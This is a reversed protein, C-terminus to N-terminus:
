TISIFNLKVFLYRTVNQFISFSNFVVCEYNWVNHVPGIQGMHIVSQQISCWKENRSHKILVFPMGSSIRARLAFLRHFYLKLNCFVVLITILTMKSFNLNIKHFNLEENEILIRKSSDVTFVTNKKVMKHPFQFIM